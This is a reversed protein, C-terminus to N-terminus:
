DRSRISDPRAPSQTTVYGHSVRGACPESTAHSRHALRYYQLLVSRYVVGSLVLRGMHARISYEYGLNPEHTSRYLRMAPYQLTLLAPVARAYRLACHGCFAKFHCVRMIRAVRRKSGIEVAERLDLFIRQARDVGVRATYAAVILGLLRQDERARDSLPKRLWAYFGGRSM